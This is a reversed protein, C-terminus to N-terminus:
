NERSRRACEIGLYKPLQSNSSQKLQTTTEGSALSALRTPKR